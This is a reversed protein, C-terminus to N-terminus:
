AEKFFPSIKEDKSDKVEIQLHRGELGLEAISEKIKEKEYSKKDMVTVIAGICKEYVCQSCVAEKGGLYVNGSTYFENKM